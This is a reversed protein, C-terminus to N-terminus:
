SKRASRLAGARSRYRELMLIDSRPPETQLHLPYGHINEWIQNGKETENKAYHYMALFCLAGFFYPSYGGNYKRVKGQINECIERVDELQRHNLLLDVRERLDNWARFDVDGSHDERLRQDGVRSTGDPITRLNLPFPVKNTLEFANGHVSEDDRRHRYLTLTDFCAKAPDVLIHLPFTCIMNWLEDAEKELGCEYYCIALYCLLGVHVSSLSGNQAELRRRITRCVSLAEDPLNQEHLTIICKRIREFTVSDSPYWLVGPQRPAAILSVPTTSPGEGDQPTLCVVPPLSSQTYLEDVLKSGLADINGSQRYEDLAQFDNKPPETLFHTPHALLFNWSDEVTAWGQAEAYCITQWCSLGWDIPSYQGNRSALRTRTIDCVSRAEKVLGFQLLSFICERLNYFAPLDKIHGRETEREREEPSSVGSVAFEDSRRTRPRLRAVQLPPPRFSM